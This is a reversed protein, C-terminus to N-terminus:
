FREDGWGMLELTWNGPTVSTLIRRDNRSLLMSVPAIVIKGTADTALNWYRDGAQVQCATSVPGTVLISTIREPMRDYTPQAEVTTVNAGIYESGTSYEDVPKTYDQARKALDGLIKHIRSLAVLMYKYPAEIEEALTQVRPAQRVPLEQGPAIKGRM